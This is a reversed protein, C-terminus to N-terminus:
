FWSQFSNLRKLFAKGLDLNHTHKMLMYHLCKKHLKQSLGQNQFEKMQYDIAKHMAAISNTHDVIAHLAGIVRAFHTHPLVHSDFPVVNSLPTKGDKRRHANKEHFGIHVHGTNTLCVETQLFKFPVDLCVEEEELELPHPYVEQLKQIDSQSNAFVLLDDMFRWGQVDM